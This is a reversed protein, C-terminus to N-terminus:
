NSYIEIFEESDSTNLKNILEDIEKIDEEYKKNLNHFDTLTDKNPYKSLNKILKSLNKLKNSKEKNFENLLQKKKKPVWEKKKKDFKYLNVNTSIKSINALNFKNNSM